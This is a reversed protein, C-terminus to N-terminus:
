TPTPERFLSASSTLRSKAGKSTQATRFGAKLPPYRIESPAESGKSSNLPSKFGALYISTSPNFFERAHLGSHAIYNALVSSARAAIPSGTVDDLAVYPVYFAGFSVEFDNMVPKQMTMFRSVNSIKARWDNNKMVEITYVPVVRGIQMSTRTLKSAPMISQPLFDKKEHRKFPNVFEM